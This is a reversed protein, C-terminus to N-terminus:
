TRYRTVSLTLERLRRSTVAIDYRRANDISAEALARRRHSDQGLEDLIGALSHPDGPTYPVGTCGLVERTGPLDSYVVPLGHAQAEIAVLGFAELTGTTFVFADFNSLRHWLESRPQFPEFHVREQLSLAVSRQELHERLTGRGIVTLHHPHDALALAEIATITSKNDDLRGAHVL